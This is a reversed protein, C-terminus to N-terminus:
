FLTFHTRSWLMSVKSNNFAQFFKELKSRDVIHLYYSVPKGTWSVSEKLPPMETVHMITAIDSLNRASTRFNMPCFSKSSVVRAGDKLDAFREKLQHDINPGFAFNNAFIITATKIKERHKEALFDGKILQYEGFNKGYWRMWTKFNRDMADAYRNPIQAKEIGYCIKCPTAAATQLVVQGVGSGLDIFVDNPTIQIQDIMQCILEYSTEGYVQASFPEYQNLKVPELVSQNYTQQLIHKLLGRSALKNLRQAPLSTGKELAVVSGIARNFRDCVSKISAYSEVNVDCLINEELTDKLHPLDECVWRITDVIDTACTSSWTFSVPPAGVPSRLKLVVM